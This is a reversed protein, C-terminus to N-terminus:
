ISAALQLIQQAQRAHAKRANKSTKRSIPGGFFSIHSLNPKFFSSVLPRLTKCSIKELTGYM